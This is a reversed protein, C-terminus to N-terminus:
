RGFLICFALLPVGVLLILLVLKVDIFRGLLGASGDTPVAPGQPDPPRGARDGSHQALTSAEDERETFAPYNAPWGASKTVDKM